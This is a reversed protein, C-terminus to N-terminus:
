YYGEIEEAYDIIIRTRATVHELITIMNAKPIAVGGATYGDESLCHLFLATGLGRARESNYDLALCHQYPLTNAILHESRSRDFDPVERIDVFTNYYASDSDGVWYDYTTLQHYPIKMPCPQPAVGFAKTFAYSGRPTRWDDEYEKGLGDRGIFGRVAFLRDWSGYRKLFFSVTANCGDEVAVTILEDTQSAARLTAITAAALVPFVAPLISRRAGGKHDRIRGPISRSGGSTLTKGVSGDGRANGQGDAQRTGGTDQRTRAQQQAPQKTASASAKQRQSSQAKQRSANGSSSAAQKKTGSASKKAQSSAKAQSSTQKKGNTKASSSSTQTNESRATPPKRTQKSSSQTASPREKVESTTKGGQPGGPSAIAAGSAVLLCGTLLLIPLLLSSTLKAM